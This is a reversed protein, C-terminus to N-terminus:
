NRGNSHDGPRLMTRNTIPSPGRKRAEVVQSFTHQVLAQCAQHVKEPDAGKNHMSNAIWRAIEQRQREFFDMSSEDSDTSRSHDSCTSNTGYRGPLDLGGSGDPLVMPHLKQQLFSVAPLPPM